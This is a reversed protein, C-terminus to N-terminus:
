ENGVPTSFYGDRRRKQVVAENLREPSSGAYMISSFLSPIDERLVRLEATLAASSRGELAWRVGQRINDDKMFVLDMERNNSHPVLRKCERHRQEDAAVSCNRASGVASASEALHLGIHMNPLRTLDSKLSGAFPQYVELLMQRSSRSLEEMEVLQDDTLGRSSSLVISRAWEECLQILLHLVSLPDRMEVGFAEDKSLEAIATRSIGRDPRIALVHRLLYPLESLLALAEHHTYSGLHHPNQLNPYSSPLAFPPSGPASSLAKGLDVRGQSSVIKFVLPLLRDKVIGAESHFPEVLIQRHPNFALGAASFPDGEARLGHRSLLSSKATGSLTSAHARIAAMAQPQRRAGQLDGASLQMDGFRSRPIEDRPCGIEATPGMIGAEENAEPSDFRGTLIKVFVRQVKGNVEAEFGERALRECEQLSPKAADSFSAGIFFLIDVRKRDFYLVHWSKGFPTFGLVIRNRLEDRDRSAM